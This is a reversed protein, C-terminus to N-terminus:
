VKTGAFKNAINDLLAIFASTSYGFVFCLLFLFSSNSRVGESFYTPAFLTSMLAGGLAALMIRSIVGSFAPTAYFRSATRTLCLVTAGLVGFLAPLIWKNTM